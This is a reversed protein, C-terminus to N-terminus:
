HAIFHHGDDNPGNDSLNEGKKEAAPAESLSVEEKTGDNPGNDSPVEGKKEAAPAESLSVEEKTGVLWRFLAVKVGEKLSRVLATGIAIALAGPVSRLSLCTVLCGLCMGEHIYVHSTVCSCILAIISSLGVLVFFHRERYLLDLMGKQKGSQRKQILSIGYDFFAWAFVDELVLFALMLGFGKDWTLTPNGIATTPGYLGAIISISVVIVIIEIKHRMAMWPGSAQVSKPAEKAGM